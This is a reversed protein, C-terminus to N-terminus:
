SLGGIARGTAGRPNIKTERVVIDALSMTPFRRHFIELDFVAHPDFRDRLFHVSGRRERPRPSEICFGQDFFSKLIM